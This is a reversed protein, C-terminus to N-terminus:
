KYTQHIGGDSVSLEVAGLYRNLEDNFAIETENTVGPDRWGARHETLEDVVDGQLRTLALTGNSEVFGPTGDVVVRVTATAEERLNERRSSELSAGVAVRPDLDGRDAAIQVPIVNAEPISLAATLRDLAEIQFTDSRTM